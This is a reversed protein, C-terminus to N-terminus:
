YCKFTPTISFYNLDYENAENVSLSRGLVRVVRVGKPCYVVRKEHLRNTEVGNIKVVCTVSEKPNKM